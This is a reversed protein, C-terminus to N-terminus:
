VTYRFAIPRLQSELTGWAPYIRTVGGHATPTPGTAHQVVVQSVVFLETHPHHDRAHDVENATVIVAEGSSTTGKVEVHLVEDGRQCELDYSHNAHVDTVAWDKSYHAVALGMAHDEIVRRLPGSLLYGGGSGSRRKGAAWEAVEQVADVDPVVGSGALLLELDDAPDTADILFRLRRSSGGSSAGERAGPERAATSIDRKLDNVDVGALNLPFAHRKLQIKQQQIPLRRTVISDVRIETIGVGRDRMRGLLLPLGLGYDRNRANIGTRGGASEYVISLPDSAVSFSADLVHGSDAVLRM